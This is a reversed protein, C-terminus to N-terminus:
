VFGPLLQKLRTLFTVQVPQFLKVIIQLGKKVTSMGVVALPQCTVIVDGVAIVGVRDAMKLLLSRCCHCHRHRGDRQFLPSSTSLEGLAPPAAISGVHRFKRVFIHSRLSIVQSGSMHISCWLCCGTSARLVVQQTHSSFSHPGRSACELLARPLM